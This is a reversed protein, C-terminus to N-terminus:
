LKKKVLEFPIILNFGLNRGMSYVGKRGTANNEPAYKLRSLHNQYSVNGLNNLHISLQLITKKNKNLIDTGIGANFLTYAETATETGYASYYNNQEFHHEMELKFYFNHIAKNLSKFQARLESVWKPQPMMPLNKLSDTQHMLIGRVYSFSNEFHLWDLPHPHIDLNIEGGTLRANGQEFRFVSYSSGDAQLISDTGNISNLKRSYIFNDIANSFLSFELTIFHSSFELGVDGQFSIESKLTPNGTEYRFTGEHIGNSALEAINPSRFGSSLNLKGIWQPTIKYSGGMSASLANYNNNFAKFKIESNGDAVNVALGEANLILQDAKIKRYSYRVGGSIYLKGFSKKTVAYLGADYMKYDPILYEIGKNSNFQLIGNFGLTTEWNRWEPVFYKVDTNFTNLLFYLGAGEEYSLMNNTFHEAYTIEKRKNQQWGLMINLVSKGLIINNASSIGYHSINQKPVDLRYSFQNGASQTEITTDNVKALKIFGGLSDREGEIMGLQQEFISVNLHAYGWRRNIGLFGNGNLENFGSNYVNGDLKNSYSGAKKGSLQALWSYGKINGANMVSFGMLRNNTQYNSMVKGLIIGEEVPRPALLNIVGAMADSGFALSGPGKIIEIRDISYEDIEIGHEDGWQQGEQRINNHLTIMRNYGLGRIVPKSIAAGTTIQSVGPQKSIADIINTAMMTNLENKDITHSPVPNVAKEITGSLGTIVVENLEASTADMVFDLITKGEISIREIKTAFGIYKIEILFKGKPLNSIVYKGQQDSVSGTKLDPIYISAGQLPKQTTRDIIKGSLSNQSYSTTYLTVILLILIKLVKMKIFEKFLLFLPKNHLYMIFRIM